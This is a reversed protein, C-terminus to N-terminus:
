SRAGWRNVVSEVRAATKVLIKRWMPSRGHLDVDVTANRVHDIALRDATRLEQLLRHVDGEDGNIARRLADAGIRTGGRDPAAHPPRHPCVAHAVQPLPGRGPPGPVPCSLGIM